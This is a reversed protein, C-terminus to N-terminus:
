KQQFAFLGQECKSYFCSHDNSKKGTHTKNQFLFALIATIKQIFMLLM